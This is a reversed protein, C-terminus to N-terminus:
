RAIECCQNIRHIATRVFVGSDLDTLATIGVQMKKYKRAMLNVCKINVGRLLSLITRACTDNFKVPIISFM